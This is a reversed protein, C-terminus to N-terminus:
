RPKEGSEAHRPHLVFDTVQVVQLLEEGADFRLLYVDRRKDQLIICPHVSRVMGGLRGTQSWHSTQVPTLGFGKISGTSGKHVSSKVDEQLESGYNPFREKHNTEALLVFNVNVPWM